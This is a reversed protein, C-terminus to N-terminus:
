QEGVGPPGAPPVHCGFLALKARLVADLRRVEASPMTLLRALEPLGAPNADRGLALARHVAAHHQKPDMSCNM